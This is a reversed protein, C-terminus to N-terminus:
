GVRGLERAHGALQAADIRVSGRVAEARWVLDLILDGREPLPWVWWDCTDHRREPIRRDNRRDVELRHGLRVLAAAPAEATWRPGPPQNSISSGDPFRLQVLVIDPEVRHTAGTGPVLAERAEWLPPLLWPRRSSLSLTLGFGDPGAVLADLTATTSRNRAIQVPRGEPLSVRVAPADARPGWWPLHHNTRRDLAAVLDEVERPGLRASGLEALRRVEGIRVGLHRLVQAAGSRPDALVGELLEFSSRLEKRALVPGGLARVLRESMQPDEYLHQSVPSREARIARISREVRLTDLAFFEALKAMDGRRTAVIGFLLHETGCREDGMAGAAGLAVDLAMQAGSDLLFESM